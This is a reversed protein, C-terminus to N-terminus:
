STACSACTARDRRRGRVHLRADREGLDVAGGRHLPRDGRPGAATGPPLRQPEFYALAALEALSFGITPTGRVSVRSEAIEIDDPAAELRHAAIAVIRERLM